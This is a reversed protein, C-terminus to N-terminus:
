LVLIEVGEGRGDIRMIRLNILLMKVLLIIVVVMM